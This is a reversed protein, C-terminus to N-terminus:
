DLAQKQRGVKIDKLIKSCDESKFQKGIVLTIDEYGRTLPNMRIDSAYLNSQWSLDCLTSCLILLFHLKKMKDSYNESRRKFFSVTRERELIRWLQCVGTDTPPDSRELHGSITSVVDVTGAALLFCKFWLCFPSHTVHGSIDDFHM